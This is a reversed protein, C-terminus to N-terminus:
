SGERLNVTSKYSQKDQRWYVTALRDARGGGLVAAKSPERLEVSQFIAGPRAAGGNLLTTAAGIIEDANLPDMPHAAAAGQAAGFAVVFAACRQLGRLVVPGLM